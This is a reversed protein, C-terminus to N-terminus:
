KTREYFKEIQYNINTLEEETIKQSRNIKEIEKLISKIKKTSLSSKEAVKEITEEDFSGTNILYKSRLYELFYSIKKEAINKFDKQQYYLNGVTEVFEVTSNTLPAIVPIIRQKRRGYFFIFFVVSVLIIYYAWKLSQQSMIYQLTSAQYKNGDKYYDDWFTQQVPLHSLAKYVYENNASNLLHYNTFSLPVTNLLFNGEGYKIRLFNVNGNENEGLVQVLTTDFESFYNEFNGTFYSYGNESKVESLNFNINISDESFFEDFTQIKLSDALDGYIGFASIFVNNGDAVYRLLYETDLRDPSFYSNIFIYNTNFYYNDKLINYIPLEKLVVEQNPFLENSIDYIIFGGYPIKDKKAFSKTWDIEEPEIIKIITIIILTIILPVLYKINKRKM